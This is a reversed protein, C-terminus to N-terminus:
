ARIYFKINENEAASLSALLNGDAPHFHIGRRHMMRELATTLQDLTATTVPHKGGLDTTFPRVAAPPNGALTSAPGILAGNCLLVSLQRQSIEVFYEFFQRKTKIVNNDPPYIKIMGYSVKLNAAITGAGLNTAALTATVLFDTM